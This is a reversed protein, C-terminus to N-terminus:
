QFMIESFQNKLENRTHTIKKILNNTWPFASRKLDSFLPAGQPALFGKLPSYMYSKIIATQGELSFIWNAVKEVETRPSSKKLIALTNFQTIVGDTPYIIKLRPDDNQFRLVNELLVWGIPREKNQIRRM